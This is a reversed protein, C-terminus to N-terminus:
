VPEGRGAVDEGQLRGRQIRGVGRGLTEAPEAEGLLAQALRVMERAVDPQACRLVATDHAFVVWEDDRQEYVGDFVENIIPEVVARFDTSRMPTAM